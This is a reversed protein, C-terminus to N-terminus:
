ISTTRYSTTLRSRIQSRDGSLRSFVIKEVHWQKRSFIPMTQFRGDNALQSIHWEEAKYDLRMKSSFTISSGQHREWMDWELVRFRKWVTLRPQPWRCWVCTASWVARNNSPLQAWATFGVDRQVFSSQCVLKRRKSNHWKAQGRRAHAPWQTRNHGRQRNIAQVWLIKLVDCCKDGM